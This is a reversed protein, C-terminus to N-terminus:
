PDVLFHLVARDHWVEAVGFDSDPSAVDACIWKVREADVGLQDAARDLAARSIDVVAISNYGHDLLQRTLPSIGGGIDVVHGDPTSNAVIYEFSSDLSDAYWSLDTASKSRYVQDWHEATM